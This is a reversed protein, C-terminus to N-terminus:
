EPRATTVGRRRQGSPRPAARLGVLSDEIVVCKSPSVGLKAAAALYIEPDPKKNKVDDGAMIVDLQALRPQGVVSDVVKEFGARTAASCIGCFVNSAIAEDMM